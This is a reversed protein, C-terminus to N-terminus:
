CAVRASSTAAPRASQPGSTSTTGTPSSRSARTRQASGPASRPTTAASRRAGAAPPRHPGPARRRRRLQRPGTRIPRTRRGRLRRLRRPQGARGQRPQHLGRPRGPGLGRPLAPGPHAHDRAPPPAPRHRRPRGPTGPPGRRRRERHPHAPLLQPLQQGVHPRPHGSGRGRRPAPRLEAAAKVNYTLVLLQEPALPGDFPNGHRPAPEAPIPNGATRPTARRRWSGASASWSSGRRAPGPARSSWSPVTTRRSSRASSPPSHTPALPTRSPGPGPANPASRPLPETVPHGRRAAGGSTRELAAAAFPRGAASGIREPAPGYCRQVGPRAGSAPDTGPVPSRTTM